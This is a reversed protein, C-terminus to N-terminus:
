FFPNPRRNSFGHSSRLFEISKLIIHIVKPMTNRASNPSLVWNAVKQKDASQSGLNETKIPEAAASTRLANIATNRPPVRLLNIGWCYILNPAPINKRAAPTQVRIEANRLAVMQYVRSILALLEELQRKFGPLQSLM